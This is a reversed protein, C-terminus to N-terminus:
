LPRQQIVVLGCLGLLAADELTTESCLASVGPEDAVGAEGDSSKAVGIESAGNRVISFCTALNLRNRRIIRRTFDITLRM